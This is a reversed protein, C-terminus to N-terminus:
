QQRQRFDADTKLATIWAKWQSVRKRDAIDLMANLEANLWREMWARDSADRATAPPKYINHADSTASARM